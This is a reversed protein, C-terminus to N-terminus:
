PLRDFTTRDFKNPVLKPTDWQPAPDKRALELLLEGSKEEDFLEHIFKYSCNVVDIMLAKMEADNFRSVNNWPIVESPTHVAVDSYDGSESRPGKGGHLDELLTTRFCRLAMYKALRQQILPDTILAKIESEM